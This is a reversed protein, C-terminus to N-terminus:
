CTKEPSGRMSYGGGEAQCRKLGTLWKLSVSVLRLMTNVVCVEGCMDSDSLRHQINNNWSHHLDKNTGGGGRHQSVQPSTTELCTTQDLRGEQRQLWVCCMGKDVGRLSLFDASERGFWLGLVISAALASQSRSDDPRAM